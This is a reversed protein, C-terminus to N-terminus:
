YEYVSRENRNRLLSAMSESQKINSQIRDDTGAPDDGFLMPADDLKVISSDRIMRKPSNAPSIKTSDQTNMVTSLKRNDPSTANLLDEANLNKVKIQKVGLSDLERNM